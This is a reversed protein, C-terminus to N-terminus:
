YTQFDNKPSTARKTSNQKAVYPKLTKPKMYSQVFNVSELEEQEAKERKMRVEGSVCISILENVDMKERLANYSLQTYSDPMSNRIFICQFLRM